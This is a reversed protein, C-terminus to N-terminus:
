KGFYWAMGAKLSMNWFKFDHVGPRTWWEHPFCVAELDHHTKLNAQYLFDETGCALFLRPANGNTQDRRAMAQIDLESDPIRSGEGFIARYYSVPIDPLRTTEIAGTRVDDLILASSLAIIGGFTEAFRLGNLLAGCGGMSFGGILTDERRRSLNFAGRTVRVLEEGVLTGYNMGMMESDVYFSNGGDPMIVACGYRVALDEVDSNRLWDLRGGTYGHLLYLTPWPGERYGPRPEPSWPYETPLVATFSCPGQIAKSLYTMELIAM